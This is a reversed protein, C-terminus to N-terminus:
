LAEAQQQGYYVIRNVSEWTQYVIQFEWFAVKLGLRNFSSSRLIYVPAYFDVLFAQGTRALPGVVRKLM